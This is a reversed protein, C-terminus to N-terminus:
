KTLFPTTVEPLTPAPSEKTKQASKYRRNNSFLGPGSKQNHFTVLLVDRFAPREDTSGMPTVAHLEKKHLAITELPENLRLVKRIESASTALINDGGLLNGTLNMLHVFVLPEDDRHLWTPSSYSPTNIEAHYRIQHLGVVLDERFQISADSKAIELNKGLLYKIIPNNLFSESIADFKRIKGGDTLNYEISQSYNNNTATVLMQNKTCWNFRSYARYRNGASNTDKSLYKYSNQIQNLYIASPYPNYFSAPVYAYGEKKLAQLIQISSTSSMLRSATM